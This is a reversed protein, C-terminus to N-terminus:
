PAPEPYGRETTMSLVWARLATVGKEDVRHTGIPPMATVSGRYSMRAVSLSREVDLPRFDYFGGEPLSLDGYDANPSPPHNLGSRVADTALVSGLEAMELRLFLGSPRAEANPTQNHCSVGCNAHLYALAEREVTDGPVRADLWARDLGVLQGREVLRAADIGTAGPGLMLFDWGLVYDRRGSHCTKCQERTPVLHASGFLDEVGANTQTATSGDESWVYTTYMWGGKVKLLYRTEGLRQSGAPGVHFEKWFRTGVPYVFDDPDSVDVAAGPPLWVYRQKGAGDSWLEHAPTYAEIGCRLTRAPWDAYLGTCRLEGPLVAGEPISCDAPMEFEGCAAVGAEDSSAADAAPDSGGDERPSSTGGTSVTGGGGGGAAVGGSGGVGGIVPTGGTAARGGSGSAHEGSEQCAALAFALGALVGAGM